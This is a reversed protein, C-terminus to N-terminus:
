SEGAAQGRGHRGAERGEEAHEVSCRVPPGVLFTKPTWDTESVSGEVEAEEPFVEPLRRPFEATHGWM